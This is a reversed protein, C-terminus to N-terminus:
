HILRSLHDRITAFRERQGSQIKGLETKLKQLDKEVGDMATKESENM